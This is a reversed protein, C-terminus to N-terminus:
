TSGSFFAIRYVHVTLRLLSLISPLSLGLVSDIEGILLMGPTLLMVMITANFM